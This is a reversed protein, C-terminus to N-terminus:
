GSSIARWQKCAGRWFKDRCERIFSTMEFPLIMEVEHRPLRYAALRRVAEVPMCLNSTMSNMERALLSLGAQM